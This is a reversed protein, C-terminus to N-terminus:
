IRHLRYYQGGPRVLSEVLGGAMPDAVHVFVIPITQTKRQFEKTLQTGGSIIVDSALPVLEAVEAQPLRRRGLSLRHRHRARGVLRTACPKRTPRRPLISEPGFVLVGIRPARGTPQARGTLPWAAAAGLLLIFERRKAGVTPQTGDKLDAPRSTPATM